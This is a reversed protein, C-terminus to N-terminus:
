AGGYLLDDHRNHKKGYKKTLDPIDNRDNELTNMSFVESLELLEEVRKQTMQPKDIFFTELTDVHQLGFEVCADLVDQQQIKSGIRLTLLAGLKDLESKKSLKVVKM